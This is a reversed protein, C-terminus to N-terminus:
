QQHCFESYYITHNQLAQQDQRVGPDARCQPRAPLALVVPSGPGAQNVPVELLGLLDPHPRVEPFAPTQPVELDGPLALDM